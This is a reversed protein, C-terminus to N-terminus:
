NKKSINKKIWKIKFQNSYEKIWDKTMGRTRAGCIIIKCEHEVFFKLSDDLRGNPDGQSEFGINVDNIKLIIKIDAGIIYDNIMIPENYRTTETNFYQNHLLDYIKKITQTKGINSKGQLVFITNEM